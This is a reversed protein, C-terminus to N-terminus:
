PAPPDLLLQLVECDRRLSAGWAACGAALLVGLAVVGAGIRLKADNRRRVATEKDLPVEIWEDTSVRCGHRREEAM